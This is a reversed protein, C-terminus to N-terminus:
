DDPPEPILHLAGGWGQLNEFANLVSVLDGITSVPSVPPTEPEM